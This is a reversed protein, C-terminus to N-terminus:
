PGARGPATCVRGPPAFGAPVLTVRGGVAGDRWRCPAFPPPGGGPEAAASGPPKEHLLVGSGVGRGGIRRRADAVVEVGAPLGLDSLLKQDLFDRDGSHAADVLVPAM